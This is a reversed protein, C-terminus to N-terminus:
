SGRTRTLRIASCHIARSRERFSGPLCTRAYCGPARLRTYSPWNRWPSGPMAWYHTLTGPGVAVLDARGDPRVVISPASSSVTTGPGAVQTSRWASGPTAWYHMLTDGPGRVVIDARGGSRVAM